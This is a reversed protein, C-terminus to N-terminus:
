ESDVEEAMIYNIADNIAQQAKRLANAKVTLTAKSADLEDQMLQLQNLIYVKDNFLTRERSKLAHHERTLQEFQIGEDQFRNHNDTVYKEYRKLNDRLNVICKKQDKILIKQNKVLLELARQASTSSDELCDSSLIARLKKLLRRSCSM